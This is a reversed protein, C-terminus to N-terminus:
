VDYSCRCSITLRLYPRRLVLLITILYQLAIREYKTVGRHLRVLVALNCGNIALLRHTVLLYFLFLFQWCELKDLLTHSDVIEQKFLCCLISKYRLHVLSLSFGPDGTLHEIEFVIIPTNCFASFVTKFLVRITCGLVLYHLFRQFLILPLFHLNSILEMKTIYTAVEFIKTIYKVVHLQALHRCRRCTEALSICHM